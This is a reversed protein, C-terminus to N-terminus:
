CCTGPRSKIHKTLSVLTGNPTEDFTVKDMLSLMLLIGRGRISLDEDVRQDNLEFCGEDRIEIVFDNESCKCSTYINNQNGKPSGHEVANAIAEAVAVKINFLTEDDFGCGAAFDVIFQRLLPLNQAHSPTVVSKVTPCPWSASEFAATHLDLHTLETLDVREDLSRM